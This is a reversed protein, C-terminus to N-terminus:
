DQDLCVIVTCLSYREKVAEDDNKLNKREMFRFIVFFFCAYNAQEFKGRVCTGWQTINLVGAFTDERAFLSFLCEENSYLKLIGTYTHIVFFPFPFMEAVDSDCNVPLHRRHIRLLYPPSLNPLLRMCVRIRRYSIPWWVLIVM